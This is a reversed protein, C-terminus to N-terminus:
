SPRHDPLDFSPRCRSHTRWANSIPLHLDQGFARSTVRVGPPASRRTGEAGAIRHLVQLAVEPDHGADVLDALGEGQEVHRRVIDDLVDYDTVPASGFRQLTSRRHLLTSPFVAGRQQRHAALEYVVSKLCDKLPAFDGALDGLPSADGISIESKNGTALVLYGREIFIDGLIAARSRAYRNEREQPSDPVSLRRAPRPVEEASSPMGVEVVELFIGLEAALARADSTEAAPTDPSPMALALVRQPGVADAALAAAVASDIGGSLGLAVGHYGGAAVFDRLGTVIALWVSEVDGKPENAPRAVVLERAPTPRTHV